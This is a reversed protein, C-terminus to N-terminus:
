TYLFAGFYTVTNQGNIYNMGCSQALESVAIGYAELSPIAQEPHRCPLDDMRACRGCVQCAGAALRLPHRLLPKVQTFLAQALHNHAKAAVQMGEIDFSDELKGISQYVFASQYGKAEEIMERVDGVDPPCMWCRGYKGCSNMACADRFELRFAIEDVDIVAASSAGQRIALEILKDKLEM